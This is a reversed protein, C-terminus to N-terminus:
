AQENSLSRASIIQPEVQLQGYTDGGDLISKDGLDYTVQGHAEQENRSRNNM